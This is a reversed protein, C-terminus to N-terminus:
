DRKYDIILRFTKNDSSYYMHSLGALTKHTGCTEAKYWLNLANLKSYKILDINSEIDFSIFGVVFLKNGSNDALETKDKLLRVSSIRIKPSSTCSVLTALALLLAVQFTYEKIKTMPSRSFPPM